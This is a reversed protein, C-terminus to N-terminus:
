LGNIFKDLLQNLENPKEMMLFHGVSDIEYYKLNPYWERLISDNSSPLEPIDAYVALTNANVKHKRWIEESILHEMVNFGITEPVRMMTTDTYTRVEEPTSEIFLSNVFAQTSEEREPGKFMNTFQNLQEKYIEKEEAQGPFDFYVGDVISISEVLGPNLEAMKKIIPHGLSHGVLHVKSVRNKELVSFVSNAFTGIDYEQFDKSSKGFGPLDVLIVKSKKKFYEEQYKWVNLDCGWGHIFLITKEGYGSKEYYVKSGNVTVYNVDSVLEKCSFLILILLTYFFYKTM